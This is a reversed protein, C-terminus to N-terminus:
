IQGRFHNRKQVKGEKRDTFHERTPYNFVKLVDKAMEMIEKWESTDIFEQPFDNTDAFIEFLDRFKKLIQYQHETLGFDKYKEIIGNGEQFFHCITEDFDDVEPGEGRIWVRKQYEKDSINDLIGLFTTMIQKRNIKM